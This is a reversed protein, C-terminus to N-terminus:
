RRAWESWRAQVREETARDAPLFAEIFLERLTVDKATGLTLIVNFLNHEQGGKKMKLPILLKPESFMTEALMVKPFTPYQALEALLAETDASPHREMDLRLHRLCEAAAEEWNTIYRSLGRPHFLLKMMNSRVDDGLDHEPFYVDLFDQFSRNAMVIDRRGNLCIASYPEYRSLVYELVSKVYEMEPADLGFASYADAFGAANMIANRDRGPVELADCLLLLLERSPRSRGTEIFSLHRASVNARLSLELQSLRRYQRWERIREGVGPKTSIQLNM